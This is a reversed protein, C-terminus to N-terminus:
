PSCLRYVIYEGASPSPRTIKVIDGPQMGLIRAIMDEHFKIIPLNLKSRIKHQKMFNAHETPPLIEHKPVLAHELPNNVLTHVQFFSIRLRKNLANMAAQNFAEGIPEMLMVIVETTTTDVADENDENLLGSIFSDIRNKIRDLPMVKYIVRCKPLATTQAAQAAQELDMRFAESGAHLMAGIEGPGFVEFPATNYGRQALIKLLTRRSHYLIHVSEFNM